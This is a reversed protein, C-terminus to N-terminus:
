ACHTLSIPAGNMEWALMCDKLGKELLVSRQVAVQDFDIGAPITEGGTTTLFKLGDKVGGFLEFVDSVLVGTWLACGAAGISWQSGSPKHPSFARGNGSCQLVTAVTSTNMRKLELLSLSGTREAGAVEFRWGDRNEIIAADPMPLNNRVFFHSEPTIPSFGFSSRMTELAWPRESHILFTAEEKSRPMPRTLAASAAWRLPAAVMASTGALAKIMFRRNFHAMPLDMKNNNVIGASLM